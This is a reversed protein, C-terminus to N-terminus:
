GASGARAFSMLAEVHHTQPFMDVVQLARPAFGAKALDAADRALAAPDCAVYVLREVGLAGAVTALGPAGARPPDVLLLPFRQGEGALGRAVKLADGQVFRVNEVRGERAARQALEVGVPSSEVATLARVRDALAFSFNGNGSYLELAEGPHPDAALLEVAARVLAENGAGNAQAFGDPRHFVPVGPRLPASGRLVPKGLVEVHGTPPVLVVGRARGGRLLREAQERLRPKVPGKLELSAACAEGEALLHVAEISEAVPSLATAVEVLWADLSPVLAPCRAVEVGRHSGREYLGLHFAGAEKFFHFVARRRYALPAPSPITPLLAYSSPAIRGVHQLASQVIEVRAALQAAEDLPQWDCGGCRDALPCPAPRRGPAGALRELVRARLVGEEESLEARVRDGPLGGPVFVARGDHLAVGEGLKALRTIELVVPAASM